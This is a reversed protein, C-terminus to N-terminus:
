SQTEYEKKRLPKLRRWLSWLWRRCSPMGSRASESEEIETWGLPFGMMWEAFNSSLRYGPFRGITENLPISSREWTREGCKESRHDRGTLTPILSEVSLRWKGKRGGKGGRNSGYMKATLTPLLIDGFELAAIKSNLDITWRKKMKRQFNGSEPLDPSRYDRSNLTPLLNLLNIVEQPNPRKGKCFKKSRGKTAIGAILTSLLTRSLVSELNNFKDKARNILLDGTLKSRMTPLLGFEIEGTRPVSVALQYLSRKAPTFRIKWALFCMTSCWISSGLFMRSLLGDRGYRPSSAICKMGSHVTMRRAKDSGPLVTLSALSDAPLLTLQESDKRSRTEM